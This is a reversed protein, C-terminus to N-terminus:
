MGGAGSGTYLAQVQAAGIAVNYLRVDDMLGQYYRSNTDPRGLRTRTSGVFSYADHVQTGVAIGDVYLTANGNIDWTAVVNHWLGDNYSKASIINVDKSGGEIFFQLKGGSTFNLHMEKQSGGGNGGTQAATYFLMGLDTYNKSTNVWMSISGATTNALDNPLNVYDNTGDFSLANGFNGAKWTPGNVTTGTATGASDTVSTGSSQDMKWWNRPQVYSPVVSVTATAAVSGATAKIM